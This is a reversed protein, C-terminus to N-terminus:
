SKDYNKAFCTAYIKAICGLTYVMTYAGRALDAPWTHRGLRVALDAPWTMTPDHYWQATNPLMSYRRAATLLTWYRGASM